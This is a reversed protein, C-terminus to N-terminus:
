NHIAIATIWPSSLTIQEEITLNDELLTAIITGWLALGYPEGILHNFWIEKYAQQLTEKAHPPIDPSFIKTWTAIWQEPRDAAYQKLTEDLYTIQSDTLPQNLLKHIRPDTLLNTTHTM